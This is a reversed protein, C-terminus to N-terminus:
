QKVLQGRAVGGPNSVSHVNFYFNAPTNIIAQVQALADATLNVGNKTFGGTGNTLTVESAALGTDVLVAGNAGVAGTHIHAATLPTGAPFGTLTVQFDATAATIAGTSDRDVDLQITVTGSGTSEANSVPPVENAPALQATFTVTEDTPDTPSDDCAMTVGIMSMLLAMGLVQKM